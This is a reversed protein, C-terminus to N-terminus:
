GLGWAIKNSGSTKGETGPGFSRIGLYMYCGLALGHM